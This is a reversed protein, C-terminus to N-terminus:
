CQLSMFTDVPLLTFPGDADPTFFTTLRGPGHRLNGTAPHPDTPAPNLRLSARQQDQERVTPLFPDDDDATMPPAPFLEAVWADDVQSSFLALTLL